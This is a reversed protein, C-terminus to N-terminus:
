YDIFGNFNNEQIYALYFFFSLNRKYLEWSIDSGNKHIILVYCCLM